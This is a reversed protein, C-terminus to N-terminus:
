EKAIHMHWRAPVAVINAQQLRAALKLEREFREASIGAALEPSLVKIVVKREFQPEEALFVRSMSAFKLRPGLIPVAGSRGEM